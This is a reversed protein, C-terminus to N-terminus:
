ALFASTPSSFKRPAPEIRASGPMTQGCFLIVRLTERSNDHADTLGLSGSQDECTSLHNNSTRLGLIVRLKGRALIRADDLLEAEIGLEGVEFDLVDDARAVDLEGNAELTQGRLM